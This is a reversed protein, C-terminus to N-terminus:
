QISTNNMVEKQVVLKIKIRRSHSETWVFAADVLKVKNIGRIKKLLISLLEKSERECLVWPPRM